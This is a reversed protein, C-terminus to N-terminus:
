NSFYYLPSSTDSAKEGDEIGTEEGMVGTAAAM